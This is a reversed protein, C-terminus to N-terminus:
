PGTAVPAGAWACGSGLLVPVPLSESVAVKVAELVAELVMEMDALPYLVADGHACWVTVAEGELVKGEATNPWHSLSVVHLLPM